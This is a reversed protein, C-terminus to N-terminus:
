AIGDPKPRIIAQQPDEPIEVPDAPTTMHSSFARAMAEFEEAWVRLQEAVVPNTSKTALERCGAAKEAFYNADPM